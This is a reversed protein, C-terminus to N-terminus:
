QSPHQEATDTQKTENKSLTMRNYPIRGIIIRSLTMRCSTLKSLKTSSLTMRNFQIKSLIIKFRTMRYLTM